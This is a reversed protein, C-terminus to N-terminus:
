LRCHELWSLEVSAPCDFGRFDFSFKLLARTLLDKGLGIFM